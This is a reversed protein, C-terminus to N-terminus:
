QVLFRVASSSLGGRSVALLEHQGRRLAWLVEAEGTAALRQGDIVYHNLDGTARLVLTQRAEAVAPDLHFRMGDQPFVVSPLATQKAQTRAGGTGSTHAHDCPAPASGPLFVETMVDHCHGTAAQGSQKCIAHRELDESHLPSGSPHQSNEILHTMVSHFLPGAAVAGTAHKMPTANFNGVWVGVTLERTYGVTWADRYAKSTGTKVAVPISLELASGRGFAEIRAANDSLIESILAAAGASVVRLPESAPDDLLLRARRYVGGRALAAYAATVELLSVEGVGLALAPGYHAADQTLSRLGFQRLLKLGEDVGMQDLLSVAPVNLSTVLARRLRVRGRFRRDYNLPAYYGGPTWFQTPSDPLLSAPSFGLQDIAAAYLLPKLASGAQRPTRAGDHQGQDAKSHVDPSGVYALVESSRNDIVVVAAATAGRHDMLRRHTSTLAEVERQLPGSLTSRLEARSDAAPPLLRRVWHHAGPLPPRPLLTVPLGQARQACDAAVLGHKAMRRLVRNRRARVISPRKKPDYLNPGRILGALTAAEALGLASLSKGFYQDAAAQIGVINPGFSVRNVYAVLIEDKSLEHEIRLALAMEQWKGRLTAPRDFTSRALQQTITSAGSVLRRHWLFQLGARTIALPDVGWHSRFRADEAGLLANKIDDPVASLAVPTFWSKDAARTRALLRGDRDVVRHGGLGPDRLEEPFTALVASGLLAAILACGIALGLVALRRVARLAVGLQTRRRPATLWFIM